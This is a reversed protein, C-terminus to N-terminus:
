IMNFHFFLGSVCQQKVTVIHRHRCPTRSGRVARVWPWKRPVAPCSPGALIGFLPILFPWPGMTDATEFTSYEKACKVRRFKPVCLKVNMYVTM